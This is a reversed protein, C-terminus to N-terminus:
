LNGETSLLGKSVVSEIEAVRDSWEPESISKPKEPSWYFGRSLQRAYIEEKGEANISGAVSGPYSSVMFKLWRYSDSNKNLVPMPAYELTPESLALLKLIQQPQNKALEELKLEAWKEGCYARAEDVNRLSYRYSENGMSPICKFNNKILVSFIKKLDKAAKRKVVKILAESDLESLSKEFTFKKCDSYLINSTICLTYLYSEPYKFYEEKSLKSNMFKIQKKWPRILDEYPEESVPGYVASGYASIIAAPRVVGYKKQHVIEDWDEKSIDNANPMMKQLEESQLALENAVTNQLFGENALKRSVKESKQHTSCSALFVLSLIILAKDM